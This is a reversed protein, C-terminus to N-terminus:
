FKYGIKLGYAIANNDRFDAVYDNGANQSAVQGKADGLWFYKVGGAIFYNAAPSYQLGVGVNWYGETPGLATIPNGAGSDWGISANGAWKEALKRGVGTNISWQDKSYQLLNFGNPRNISPLQGVVESVMGFKVPRIEFDKWNVWRINAFAVTDKMVGSQLDINVSQPTSIKTDSTATAIHAAAAAAQEGLLSLAPLTPLNESTKIDHDIKSRYTVSAKLAIEPIQYAAGVLWGYGDTEKLAADYGNYVSTAQGRLSVNGKITQYVGGAYFNLNQNPQFGFIMALNDSDVKALTAGQGVLGNVQALGADVKQTVGQKVAADIQAKATANSKYLALNKAFEEQGKPSSLDIGQGQLAAGVRQQVSLANFNKDISSARLASLTTKPLITTNADTVFGNNGTYEVDAGFPQDYLLGFSIHDTVQLKLAASPFYYDKGMDDIHRRSESTGADQGEVTPDLISLGAEFYNNPQLFASVSQGSRDMAAAFIGSTPLLSLLIASYLANIKM